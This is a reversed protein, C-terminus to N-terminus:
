LVTVSPFKTHLVLRSSGAACSRIVVAVHTIRAPRYSLSLRDPPM